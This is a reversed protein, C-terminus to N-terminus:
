LIIEKRQHMSGTLRSNTAASAAANTLMEMVFAIIGGEIRLPLGDVSLIVAPKGTYDGNPVFSLIEPFHCVNRCKRPRPM